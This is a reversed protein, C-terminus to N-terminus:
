PPASAALDLRCITGGGPRPMLQVSGQHLDAVRRVLALGIGAGQSGEGRRFREFLGDPEAGPGDGDDEVLVRRGEEVRVEVHAGERTHTLANHVINRVAVEILAPNGELGSGPSGVDLAITQRRRVAAPAAEECVRRAIAALDVSGHKRAAHSQAFRLLEEVLGGLRDIEAGIQARRAGRPLADAELRLVALPTRLEHAVDATFAELTAIAREIAELMSNMAGALDTLERPRAPVEIRQMRDGKAAAEGIALAADATRRLARITPRVALFMALSLAPLLVGLPVAVHDKIEDRIVGLGLMAPDGRMTVQVWLKRRGRVVRDTLLWSRAQGPGQAPLADFSETLESAVLAPHTPDAQEPRPLLAANAQALVKQRALVRRNFVRFAYNAPYRRYPGLARPDRHNWIAQAVAEAQQRLANERLYSTNLGYHVVFFLLLAVAALLTAVGMRLLLAAGLGIPRRATNKM